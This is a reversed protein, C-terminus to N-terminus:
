EGLLVRALLFSVILFSATRENSPQCGSGGTLQLWVVLKRGTTPRHVFNSGIDRVPLGNMKGSVGLAPVHVDDAFRAHALGIEQVAENELIKCGGAAKAEDIRVAVLRLPDGVACRGM